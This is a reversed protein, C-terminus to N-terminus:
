HIFRAWSMEIADPDTPGSHIFIRHRATATEGAPLQWDGAISRSPAIGLQGDVRWHQPHGVNTPHDMMALGAINNATPDRDAPARDPLPMAIAVWRARQAEASAPTRHGNSTLVTNHEGNAPVFPMRVFLGGYAHSGFTLDIAAQLSWAVDLEYTAGLDNLAWAQTECLLLHGDPARWESVVTWQCYNGHIQPAALPRPHFTGDQPQNSHGESWFGFGNVRNLGVYLGHQWPHHPPANETVTGRGDPAIIPHIFARTDPVANQVLIPVDMGPRFLAIRSGHHEARLTCPATTPRMNM